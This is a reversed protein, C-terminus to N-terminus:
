DTVFLNDIIYTISKNTMIFAVNKIVQHDNIYISNVIRNLGLCTELSSKKHDL